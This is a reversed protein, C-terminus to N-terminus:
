IPSPSSERTAIEKIKKQIELWHKKM